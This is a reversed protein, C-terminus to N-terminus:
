FAIDEAEQITATRAPPLVARPQLENDGPRDLSAANESYAANLMLVTESETKITDVKFEPIWWKVLKMKGDVEKEKEIKKTTMTMCYDWASEIPPNIQALQGWLNSFSGFTTIPFSMNFPSMNSEDVGFLKKRTDKEWERTKPNQYERVVTKVRMFYFRLSTVVEGSNNKFIEGVHREADSGDALTLGTSGPQIILYFPLPVESRDVDELGRISLKRKIQALEENAAHANKTLEKVKEEKMKRAVEVAKKYGNENDM